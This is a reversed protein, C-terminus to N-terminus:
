RVLARYVRVLRPQSAGLRYLVCILLFIGQLRFVGNTLYKRASTTVVAPLVAFRGHRRLRRTIEQDELVLMDARYGGAREFVTRRVFLSQDGFRVVEAQFRTFWANLRLFWHPHDFRLRFCGSGYGAAVAGRIRPLFDAPPYSDAHLFYLLEGGAQTAGHNLQAARGRRPCLLVRAGAAAAEAATGDTSQGDAVLIELAAEAPGAAGRLYRVLPGIRGAENYAPIIISVSLPNMSRTLSVPKSRLHRFNPFVVFGVLAPSTPKKPLLAFRLDVFDVQLERITSRRREFMLRLLM